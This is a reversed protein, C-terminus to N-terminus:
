QKQTRENFEDKIYRRAIDFAHYTYQKEALWEKWGEPDPIPAYIEAITKDRHQNWHRAQDLEGALNQLLTLLTKRGFEPGSAYYKELLDLDSNDIEDLERFANIEKESWSYSEKRGMIAALRKATESFPRKHVRANVAGFQAAAKYEGCCNNKLVKPWTHDAIPPFRICLANFDSERYFQCTQCTM